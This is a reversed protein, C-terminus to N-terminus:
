SWSGKIKDKMFDEENCLVWGEKEEQDQGLEEM